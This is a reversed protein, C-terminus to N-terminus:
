PDGSYNLRYKRDAINAKLGAPMIKGIAQNCLKGEPRYAIIEKQGPHLDRAEALTCNIRAPPLSNKVRRGGSPIKQVGVVHLNQMEPVHLNQM